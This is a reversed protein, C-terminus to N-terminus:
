IYNRITGYRIQTDTAAGQHLLLLDTLDHPDAIYFYLDGFISGSGASPPREVTGSATLFSGLQSSHLWWRYVLGTRAYLDSKFDCYTHSERIQRLYPEHQFLISVLRSNM